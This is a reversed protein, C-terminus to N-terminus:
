FIKTRFYQRFNYEYLWHLINKRTSCKNILIYKRDQMLGFIRCDNQSLKYKDFWKVAGTDYYNKYLKKIRKVHLLDKLLEHLATLIFQM